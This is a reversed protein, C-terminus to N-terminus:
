PAAGLLSPRPRRRVLSDSASLHERAAWDAVLCRELPAWPAITELSVDEGVMSLLDRLVEPKMDLSALLEPRM